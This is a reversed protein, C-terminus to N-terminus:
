NRQREDFCGGRGGDKEDDNKGCFMFMNKFFGTFGNEEQQQKQNAAAALRSIREAEEKVRREEKAELEDMVKRRNYEQKESTTYNSVNVSSKEIKKRIVARTRDLRSVKPAEPKSVVSLDLDLKSEENKRM